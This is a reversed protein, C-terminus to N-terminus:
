MKQTALGVIAKWRGQRPSQQPPVAPFAGGVPNEQM